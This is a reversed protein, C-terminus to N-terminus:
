VLAIHLRPVINLMTQHIHNDTQWVLEQVM